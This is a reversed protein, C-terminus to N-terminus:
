FYFLIATIQFKKEKKKKKIKGEPDPDLLYFSHPDVRIRIWLGPQSQGSNRSLAAHALMSHWFIEHCQGKLTLSLSEVNISLKRTTLFYPSLTQMTLLCM